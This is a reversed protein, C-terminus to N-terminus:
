VSFRVRMVEGDALLYKKGEVRVTGDAKARQWGGLRIVDRSPAVEGRIFGRQMDSHIKGAATAADADQRVTWARSEKPGITYFTKLGLTRYSTVILSAPVGAGMGLGEYLAARESPELRSVEEELLACVALVNDERPVVERVQAVLAEPEPHDEGVNVVWVCPLLSLPAMDRFAALAIESWTSVRLPEGAGLHSSGEQVAEFAPRLSRDAAAEKRMRESRREFVELDSLAVEVALDDAARAPDTGKEDVPVAASDHARLVVVLLDLDSGSVLGRIAGPRVAPLDVLELTTHTVKRSGELEALRELNPDPVRLTGVMSSTTAYPHPATFGDLGTLANFLTTKGANPLGLLGIRIM